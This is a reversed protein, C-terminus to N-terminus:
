RRVHRSATIRRHRRGSATAAGEGPRHLASAASRARIAPACGSNQPTYLSLSAASECVEPLRRPYDLAQAATVVKEVTAPRVGGRGNLVREVIATGVGAHRAIDSFTPKAAAWSSSYENILM